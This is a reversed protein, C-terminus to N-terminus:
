HWHDYKQICAQAGDAGARGFGIYGHSQYSQRQDFNSITDDFELKCSSYQDFMDPNYVFLNAQYLADLKKEVDSNFIQDILQNYLFAITSNTAADNQNNTDIKKNNTPKNTSNNNDSNNNNNNNNNNNM